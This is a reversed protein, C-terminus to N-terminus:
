LLQPLHAAQRTSSSIGAKTIFRETHLAVPGHLFKKRDGPLFRVDRFTERQAFQTKDLRQRDSKVGDRAPPYLAAVFHGDDTAARDPQPSNGSRGARTRAHDGDVQVVPFEFKCFLGASVIRNM